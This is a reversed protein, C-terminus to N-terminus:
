DSLWPLRERRCGGMSWLTYFSWALWISLRLKSIRWMFPSSWLRGKSWNCWFRQVLWIESSTGV